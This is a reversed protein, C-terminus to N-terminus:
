RDVLGAMDECIRTRPRWGRDPQRGVRKPGHQANKFPQARHNWGRGGIPGSARSVGEGLKAPEQEALRQWLNQLPNGYEGLLGKRVAM